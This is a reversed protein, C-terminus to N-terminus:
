VFLRIFSIKGISYNDVEKVVVWSIVFLVCLDIVM